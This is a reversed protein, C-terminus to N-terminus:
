DLRYIQGDEACNSLPFIQRAENLLENVEAYRSSFHGLILEKVKAKQAITAAQEATSHFTKKARDKHKSSFTAEHYLLDSNEIWPIIKEEYATDSCYGYTFSHKPELTFRRYDCEIGNIEINKGALLYPYHHLEVGASKCKKADIRFPKQKEKIQFGCTPIRHTLPFSWIEIKEDEFICTKTDFSLAKFAVNFAMKNGSVTFIKEIIEQLQTPGYITIGKDRGLLNMTSLLGPLGFFHDGHLHSILIHSIRQIHVGYKRLQMQTGEGCDILLHRNNCCIYQSTPARKSTPLAAGSGLIRVFFNL